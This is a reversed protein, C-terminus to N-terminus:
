RRRGGGGGNGDGGRNGGGNNGGGINGGGSPSRSPQSVPRAAPQSNHQQSQGQQWTSQHFHQADRSQNTNSHQAGSPSPTIRNDSQNGRMQQNERPQSTNRQEQSNSHSSEQHLSAPVNVRPNASQTHMESRSRENSVAAVKITPYSSRNQNVFESREMPHKPNSSNYNNRNTEMKGFESFRQTRGAKDRNWDDNVVDRNRGRWENVSRSVNNSYRYGPHNDYYTYCHNGFEPYRSWNTPNYFYWNMFHSSPMGFFVPRRGPGYYFGLDYWYPYPDWYSYPYWTPYGYWWNYSYTSYGSIDTNYPTTYDTPQVNNDQAYQQAADTYEQLAQPNDNLSKQWDTAAQANQQTLAQNLSDTKYLVWKPDSRYLDGILVTMQMNDSLTNLIEPQDILNHYASVTVPPYNRMLDEFNTEYLRNKQAIKLLLDYNKMGEELATAHIEEPYKLLITNIEAESKPHDFAIDSILSPYRTMNWIKEQEEKSYPALLDTFKEKTKKQMADLRVVVEPFKAAELIDVRTQAPYMAIADIATQDDKELQQLMAEEDEQAFAKHGLCILIGSLALIKFFNKM